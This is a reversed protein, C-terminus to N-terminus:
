HPAHIEVFGRTKGSASDVTDMAQWLLPLPAWTPPYNYATVDMILVQDSSNDYAALPSFHGGGEQGLPERAYNVLLYDNAPALNRQVTTRFADLNSDAAHTVTVDMAHARLLEGNQDLTMGGFAVAYPSMVARASKDFFSKQTVPTAQLQLANMVIVSSAVGCYALLQQPEFYRAITPYDAQYTSNTLLTQGEASRADLLPATLPTPDDEPTQIAMKWFGYGVVAGVLLALAGFVMLSCRLFKNM